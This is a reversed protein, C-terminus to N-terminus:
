GHKRKYRESAQKLVRREQETLSTEGSDSIKALVRDVEEDLLQQPSRRRSLATPRDLGRSSGRWRPLRDWFQELNLNFKWYVFGFALGGLHAAHGIGDSYNPDGALARL